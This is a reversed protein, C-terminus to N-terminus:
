GRPSPAATDTVAASSAVLVAARGLEVGLRQEKVGRTDMGKQLQLVEERTSFVRWSSGSSSAAITATPTAAARSAVRPPPEEAAVHAPQEPVGRLLWYRVGDRDQGLLRSRPQSADIKAIAARLQDQTQSEKHLAEAIQLRQRM